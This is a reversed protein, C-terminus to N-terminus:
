CGPRTEEMLLGDIAIDNLGSHGELYARTSPEDLRLHVWLCGCGPRWALVEDWAVERAGGAGDLQLAHIVGEPWDDM